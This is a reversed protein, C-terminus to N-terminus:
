ANTLKESSLKTNPLQLAAKLEPALALAMALLHKAILARWSNPTNSLVREVNAQEHLLQLREDAIAKLHSHYLFESM